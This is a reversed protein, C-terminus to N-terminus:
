GTKPGAASGGGNDEAGKSGVNQTLARINGYEQIVPSGYVLKDSPSKKQDTM